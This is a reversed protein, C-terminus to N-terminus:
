IHEKNLNNTLYWIILSHIRSGPVHSEWLGPSHQLGGDNQPRDQGCVVRRPMSTQKSCGLLSCLPIGVGAARGSGAHIWGYHFWPSCLLAWKGAWPVTKKHGADSVNIKIAGTSGFDNLSAFFFVPTLVSHLGVGLGHLSLKFALPKNATHHTLHNLPITLTRQM